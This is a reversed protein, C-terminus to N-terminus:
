FPDKVSSFKSIANGLVNFRKKILQKEFPGSILVNVKEEFKKVFIAHVNSV